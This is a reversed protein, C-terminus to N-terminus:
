YVVLDKDQYKVVDQLCNLFHNIKIKQRGSYIAEAEGGQEGQAAMEVVMYLMKIPMQLTASYHFTIYMDMLSNYVCVCVHIYPTKKNNITKPYQDKPQPTHTPPTQCPHPSVDNLAEAASDVDDDSFVKLQQLM